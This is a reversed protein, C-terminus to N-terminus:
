YGAITDTGFQNVGQLLDELHTCLM